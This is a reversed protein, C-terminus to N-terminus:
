CISQEPEVQTPIIDAYNINADNLGSNNNNGFNFADFGGAFCEFIQKLLDKYMKLTEALLRSAFLQLLPTLKDLVHKLLLDVIYDKIKLIIEKLIGLLDTLVNELSLKTYEGYDDEISGMVKKNLVLLFLIKPSFLPRVFPYVLMRMLEVGFDYNFNIQTEIESNKGPTVSLENIVESIITKNTELTSENTIGTLKNLISSPDVSVADDGTNIVSTRKIEMLELMENYEDNSFSFFCDDIETDSTTIIKDIIRDIKEQVIKDEISLGLNLSINGSGLLYQTIESLIVKLDFLKISTLFDHNFEFITKNVGGEVGMIENLGKIYRTHYYTKPSLHVILSDNNPYFDERYTCIIIEKKDDTNDKDKKKEGYLAARYRDDWTSEEVKSADGRNIVWWLYANFDTSKYVDNATYGSVDFYFLEGDPSCPNRKLVGSFDIESMDITIGKSQTAVSTGPLNASYIYDDSIIPNTTCNLINIINAELAMKITEEVWTIFGSNGGSEMGDTLAGIVIDIVQQRDIKLIKFLISLLDFSTSFGKDDFSILQMPFKEVLTQIAGINGIMDKADDYGAM